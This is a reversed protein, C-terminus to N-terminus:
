VLPSTEPTRPTNRSDRRPSSSTQPGQVRTRGREEEGGARPGDRVSRQAFFPQGQPSPMGTQIAQPTAAQHASTGATGGENTSINGLLAQRVYPPYESWSSRIRPDSIYAPCVDMNILDLRHRATPPQTRAVRHATAHQGALANKPATQVRYLGYYGYGEINNWVLSARSSVDTTSLVM